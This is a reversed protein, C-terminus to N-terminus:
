LDSGPVYSKLHSDAEPLDDMEESDNFSDEELWKFPDWPERNRLRETDIVSREAELYENFRETDTFFRTKNAKDGFQLYVKKGDVRFIDFINM